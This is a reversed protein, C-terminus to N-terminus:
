EGGAATDEAADGLRATLEHAWRRIIRDAAAKNTVRNARQAFGEDDDQYDMIRAFIANTTSDYLEMYLTMSGASRVVVNVIGATHVDPAEVDLNIIAPRVIVVDPGATNVVEHGAETLEETFVRRFEEALEKKIREMDEDRIRLDFSASRNYDKEWDKEFAVYCDILAVKTYPELSAGPMAYVIRTKTQKILQMGEPTTQPVEDAASATLVVLMLALFATMRRQARIKPKM